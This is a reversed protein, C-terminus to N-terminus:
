RNGSMAPKLRRLLLPAAFGDRRLLRQRLILLVEILHQDEFLPHRFDGAYQELVIDPM